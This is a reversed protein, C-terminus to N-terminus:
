ADPGSGVRASIAERMRSGAEAQALLAGESLLTDPLPAAADSPSASSAAATGAATATSAAPASAAATPTAATTTPRVPPLNWYVRNGVDGWVVVDTDWGADEM